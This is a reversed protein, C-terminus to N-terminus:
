EGLSAVVGPWLYRTLMWQKCWAAVDPKVLAASTKPRARALISARIRARSFPM